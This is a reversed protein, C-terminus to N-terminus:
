KRLATIPDLHSAKRAPYIGFVLGVITCFGFALVISQPPLIFQWNLGQMAALKSVAFALVVGFSIGVIGGLLTIIVAEALFQWLIDKKRAGVAKRLGIESTRENVNVYMVNMIGVGGVILSIGAIIILLIQIANVIVGVISLAEQMSTVAFDDKDPDTIEHQERMIATLDSATQDVIDPDKVKGLMFMIHDIGMVKKQLTQLPMFVMDDWNMGFASGREEMVGIVEFKHKGIKIKQGLPDNSGFFKDRVDVGLVAVRAMSENEEKTLFRGDEVEGKDIKLMDETVGFLMTTKNENSYSVNDQGMVGAYAYSINPHELVAEMDQAKLTTVEVGMAIGMANATSTKSVNPVKIEVEIWDSGFAEIETLIYGKIGQGASMVVIVATIGIVIGLITLLSRGRKKKLSMVALKIMNIFTM